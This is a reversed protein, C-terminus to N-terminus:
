DVMRKFTMNRNESNAAKRAELVTRLFYDWDIDDPTELQFILDERLIDLETKNEKSSM